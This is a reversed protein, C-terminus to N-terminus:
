GAIVLAQAIKGGSSEHDAIADFFGGDAGLRVRVKVALIKM